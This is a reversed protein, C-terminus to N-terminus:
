KLHFLLQWQNPHILSKQAIKLEICVQPDTLDLVKQLNIQLKYVRFRSRKVPGEMKKEIEAWCVDATIGCYLAGFQYPINYRGGYILSGELSLPTQGYHRANIRYVRKRFKGSKIKEIRISRVSKSM